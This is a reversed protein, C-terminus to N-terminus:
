TDTLSKSIELIPGCVLLIPLSITPIYLYSVSVHIHFDPSLGSLEKEPFIQKFNETNNRHLTPTPLRCLSFFSQSLPYSPSWSPQAHAALLSPPSRSGFFVVASSRPRKWYIGDVACVDFCSLCCTKKDDVCGKFHSFSNKKVSVSM